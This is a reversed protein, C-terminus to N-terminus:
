SSRPKGLLKSEWEAVFKVVGDRACGGCWAAAVAIFGDGGISLKFRMELSDAIRRRKSAMLSKRCSCCEEPTAPSWRKM